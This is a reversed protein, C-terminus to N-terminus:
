RDDDDGDSGEARGTQMFAHIAGPPIALSQKPDEPYRLANIALLRGEATVIPAGLIARFNVLFYFSYERELDSSDNYGVPTMTQGVAPSFGFISGPMVADMDHLILGTEPGAFEEGEAAALRALNVHRNSEEVQLEVLDSRHRELLGRRDAMVDDLPQPDHGGLELGGKSLAQSVDGDVAYLESADSIWDATSVLEPDDGSRSASIWLAHGRYIMDTQRYHSPPRQVAIIEVTAAAVHSSVRELQSGSLTRPLNSADMRSPAQSPLGPRFDPIEDPSVRTVEVEDFSEFPSDHDSAADDDEDDDLGTQDIVDQDEDSRTQDVTDAPVVRQAMIPTTSVTVVLAVVVTTSYLM